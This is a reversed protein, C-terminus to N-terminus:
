SSPGRGPALMEEYVAATRQAIAPWAFLRMVRERSAAGMRSRREPDSAVEALAEALGSVDGPPVLRGNVGPVVKDPIGGARTAVVPLGHAMAELTVISSGEYHTAHVFVDARAYCAHLRPNDRIWGVFHVRPRLARGPHAADFASIRRELDARESGEGIVLWAWGAPLGDRAQLEMLAELVDGFGKYPELRGVSILVPTAQGLGPALAEVLPRPDKPTAEAIEEPDIGNPLVVVRTPAVGLYRPVEDKTVEDTAIVRDSLAATERSLRRLRLLALRKWGRTKHEEMGQPNLLLPARLAPDLRRKRAYGLGSMGQAHVVAIEGTRVRAAVAEGLRRAFGPYNVTRELVRGHTGLPLSQYPVTVTEGPFRGEQTAPRTYLVTEIGLRHLQRALHYVSREM